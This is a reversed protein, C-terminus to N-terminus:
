QQSTLCKKLVEKNENMRKLTKKFSKKSQKKNKPTRKNKAM